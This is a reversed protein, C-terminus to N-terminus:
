GLNRKGSMEFPGTPRYTKRRAGLRRVAPTFVPEALKACELMDTPLEVGHLNVSRSGDARAILEGYEKWASGALYGRVVCEIPIAEAKVGLMSRGNLTDRYSSPDPAGAATLHEIIEDVDATVVHNRVIDSTLEFWFLSLQTLVRGKDPIGGPLVV